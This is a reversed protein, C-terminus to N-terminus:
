RTPRALPVPEVDGWGDLGGLGARAAPCMVGDSVTM